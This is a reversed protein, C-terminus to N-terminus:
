KTKTAKEETASKQEGSPESQKQEVVPAAITEQKFEVPAPDGVRVIKKKLVAPLKNNERQLAKLASLPLLTTKTQPRGDHGMVPMLGNSTVISTVQLHPGNFFSM